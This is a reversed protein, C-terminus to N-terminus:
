NKDRPIEVNIKTGKGLESQLSFTGGVLEARERMSTLGLGAGRKNDLDLTFGLGNDEIRLLIANSNQSLFISAKDTQAHKIVNNLGEQVIRFLATELESSIEATGDYHFTVHLGDQRQRERIHQELASLLGHDVINIPRLQFIFSRIEKLAGQAMEHLRELRDPVRSADKELLIRASETALTISFITQTVSDHLERALRNREEMIALSRSRDYLHANEIAIAVQDGLSQIVLMDEPGFANLQDSQVDLTGLVREGLRLPIVLESRTDPLLDIPLYRSEQSVDNVIIPANTQAVESNLSSPGLDLSFSQRKLQQGIEGSASRLVLRNTARHILFVMVSYYDFSNSILEVVRTLLKDLDLISTIERSVQASTELQLARHALEATQQTVAQKLTHELAKAQSQLRKYLQANEIAVAALNAFIGSLRIDDEGFRRQQNNADISLVGISQEQWRMPVTLNTTDPSLPVKSNAVRGEWSLYDKIIMPKGSQIVRGAIGEGPKIVIGYDLYEESFHYGTSQILLEREQDWLFITGEDAQLLEVAWAVISQLIAGMTPLTSTENLILQRVEEASSTQSQKPSVPTNGM